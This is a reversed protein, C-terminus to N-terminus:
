AGIILKSSYVKGNESVLRVFYIGKPYNSVDLNINNLGANFQQATQSFVMRGSVNLLQIAINDASELNLNITAKNFAPIPFIKVDTINEMEENEGLLIGGAAIVAEDINETTPLWVKQNSITHDPKIVIVTPYSQIQYDAYVIDGGGQTGSVTPLTIGFISDFEHVQENNRGYNIGVFFVNGQNSGFNIYSRQFDDAYDQCPGCSTSFFDIVVIMSDNDLLPFLKITQGELTKAHFDNAETLLTQSSVSITTFILFLLFINKM